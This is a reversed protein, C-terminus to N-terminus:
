HLDIEVRRNLQLCAKLQKVNQKDPCNKVAQADGMSKTRIKEVPLGFRNVLYHRITNARQLGLRQNYAQGGLHDTHGTIVM